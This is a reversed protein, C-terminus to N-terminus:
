LKNKNEKKMSLLYFKLPLIFLYIYLIINYFYGM